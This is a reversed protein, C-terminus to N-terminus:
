FGLEIAFEVFGWNHFGSDDRIEASRYVQGFTFTTWAFRLGLGWTIDAVLPHREVRVSDEFITGDLFTDRLVARGEVGGFVYASWPYLNGKGYAPTFASHVAMPSGVNFQRPTNWGGAVRAGVVGETFPSGLRAGLHPVLIADVQGGDLRTEFLEVLWRRDFGLMLTLEQTLEDVWTPEDTSLFHHIPRQVQEGLAGPGIMGIDLEWVDQWGAPEGEVDPRDTVVTMLGLYLWAAYPRDEPDVTESLLDKPTFILHSVALGGGFRRRDLADAGYFLHPFLLPDLPADFDDGPLAPLERDRLAEGVPEFQIQIRLGQTYDNDSKELGFADNEEHFSFSSVYTGGRAAWGPREDQSVPLLVALLLAATVSAM